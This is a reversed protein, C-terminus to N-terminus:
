VYFSTTAMNATTGTKKEKKRKKKKNKKKAESVRQQAPLCYMRPGANAQCVVINFQLFPVGRVKLFFHDSLKKKEFDFNLNFM